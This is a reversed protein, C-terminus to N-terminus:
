FYSFNNYLSKSLDLIHLITLCMKLPMLHKKKGKLVQKVHSQEVWFSSQEIVKAQLLEKKTNQYHKILYTDV